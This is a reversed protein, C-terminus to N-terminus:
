LLFPFVAKRDKPYDDFKEKYWKDHDLARPLLNAWTWIAFSLTPISWTMIAWGVWEVMEGMLNPSSVYKFLGGKPIKYGTSGDKRLAILRYDHSINIYAGSVFLVIGVIFPISYFWENSYGSLFGVFYGNITGNVLNFFFASAAISVPMEKGKTRTMFPWIFTRHIYHFNYLVFFVISPYTLSEYNILVLTSFIVPSPLEMIIWGLKSPITRLKKNTHRGYPATIKLAFPFVFVALIIWAYVLQYFHDTFYELM